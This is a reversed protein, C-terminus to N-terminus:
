AMPVTLQKFLASLDVPPPRDDNLSNAVQADMLIFLCAAAHALHHCDSDDANEEGSFWQEIHRKAAAVYTTASVPDKRWNYAGYKISGDRFAAATLAVAPGPVLHLPPKAMGFRTKPNDDPALM